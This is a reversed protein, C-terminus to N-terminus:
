LREKRVVLKTHLVGEKLKDVRFIDKVRTHVMKINNHNVKRDVHLECVRSCSRALWVLLLCRSPFGSQSPCRRNSERAREEM